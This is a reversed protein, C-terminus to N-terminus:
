IMGERQPVAVPPPRHSLSGPRNTSRPPPAPSGAGVRNIRPPWEKPKGIPSRLTSLSPTYSSVPSVIIDPPPSLPTTSDSLGAGAASTPTRSRLGAVATPLLASYPSNYSAASGPVTSTPANTAIPSKPGLNTSLPSLRTSSPATIEKGKYTFPVTAKISEKPKEQLLEDLLFRFDLGFEELLQALNTELEPSPFVFGVKKSQSYTIKISEEM